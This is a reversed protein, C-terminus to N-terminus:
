NKKILWLPNNAYIQSLEIKWPKRALAVYPASVLPVLAPSSLVQFHLERLKKLREEKDLTKMYERLWAEAKSKTYGFLGANMSYSILGIDEMFGTDPGGLYIDPIDSENEYHVFAPINNDETIKIGPLAKKILPIIDSANGFRVVSLHIGAGSTEAKVTKFTDELKIHNEKTLGGDGYPPFFQDTPEYGSTSKYHERFINKLAKGIQLRKEQSLSTIAKPTYVAVFTRINMTSHLEADSEQESFQIIKEPNLKDITTIFDVKDEKFLSLSSATGDIGSPVLVIKQPVSKDYHFHKQNIALTINGHGDDSEVYYLGSTNRYDSIKLTNKDVSPSPIIAFDIAALMKLLFPK